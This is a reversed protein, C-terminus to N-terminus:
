KRYNKDFYQRRITSQIMLEKLREGDEHLLTEKLTDLAKEFDNIERILNEKNYFFLETWLNENIRAIRTLDRFSDGTYKVLEPNDNANMLSIAIAHTLQSVYGIMEDHKEPSLISINSFELVKAFEKLFAIAQQSNKTTPTILFNAQKFMEDDCYKVGSVEKGAMPHSAIFEVDDRLIEQVQTVIKEKVGSVDSILVGSKFYKQYSTIWEVMVTPYLGFLIVDAEQIMDVDFTSGNEIINNEIAYDISLQNIEIAKVHYGRKSLGYAYSGGMLGLGVVLFKLDKNM